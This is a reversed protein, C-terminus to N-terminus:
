RDRKNENGKWPANQWEAYTRLQTLKSLEQASSGLSLNVTEWRNDSFPMANVFEADPFLMKIVEGNTVGDPIFITNQVRKECQELFKLTDEKRKEERTM